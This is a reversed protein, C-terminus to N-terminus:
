GDDDLVSRVANELQALASRYQGNRKLASANMLGGRLKQLDRVTLPGNRLLRNPRETVTTEPRATAEKRPVFLKFLNM